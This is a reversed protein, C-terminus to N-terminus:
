HLNYMCNYYTILMGGPIHCQGDRCKSICGPYRRKCQLDTHCGNSSMIGGFRSADSKDCMDAYIHM